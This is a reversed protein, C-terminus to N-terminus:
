PSLAPTPTLSTSGSGQSTGLGYPPTPCTTARNPVPKPRHLAGGCFFPPTCRRGGGLCSHGISSCSFSVFGFLTNCCLVDNSADHYGCLQCSGRTVAQSYLSSVRPFLVVQGMHKKSETRQNLNVVDAVQSCGYPPRPFGKVPRIM